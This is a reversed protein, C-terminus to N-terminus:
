CAGLLARWEVDVGCSAAQLMHARKQAHVSLAQKGATPPRLIQDARERVEPLILPTCNDRGGIALQVLWLVHFKDAVLQVNPFDRAFSRYGDSL